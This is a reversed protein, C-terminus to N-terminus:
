CRGGSQDEANGLESAIVVLDLVNVNGDSNVDATIPPSETRDNEDITTRTELAPVILARGVKEVAQFVALNRGDLDKALLLDGVNTTLQTILRPNSPFHGDLIETGDAHVRYLLVKAGSHNLFLIDTREGRTRSENLIPILSPDYPPLNVWEDRENIAPNYLEEYAELEGPPRIIKPASQPDFGQLHPLHTRMALPTYRWAYDGFIEAILSALSPDYTKLADRTKIPNSSEAAHFWSGVAEAFYEDRNLAAYTDAWLGKAMAADYTTRLRKDFAPDVRNLAHHLAHTFEHILVSYTHSGLLVEESDSVIGCTFPCTGGRGRVNYFFHPVLYETLEPIDSASENHATISFRARGQGLVQLLDPRHRTMHWILWAAEKLAYPNVRESSVVAFGEINIWQQYFPDLEFFDRVEKPPPVPEPINNVDFNLNVFPIEDDLEITGPGVIVRGRKEEARFVALPSGTHDKLIWLEGVRAHIHSIGEGPVSRRRLHQTGDYGVSYVLIVSESEPLNM